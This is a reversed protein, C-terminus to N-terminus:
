ISGLERVPPLAGARLLQLLADLILPRVGSGGQALQHLRICLMARVRAASRLPGAATAHSRLLRLVPDDGARAAANIGVECNESDSDATGPSHAPLAVTRNAGVGTSRGYLPRTAAVQDAFAASRAARERGAPALRVDGADNAVRAIQACRLVGDGIEITM